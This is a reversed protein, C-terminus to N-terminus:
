EVDHRALIQAPTKRLTNFVPLLGVIINFAFCSLVALGIIYPNLMFARSLISIEMLVSIIYSMLAIGLLCAITTIAIIEGLFMKYIDSKKVGIARFIGIEKIRSLFSARIILFIEILSIAIIVGSFILNSVVGDKISEKYDNKAKDYTNYVNLKQAQFDSLTEENNNSYITIDQSNEIVYYKLTNPSVLYYSYDEASTYYGVVKLKTNNIKDEIKKNLPMMVSHAYDVVVEYDKEPWRGKKLKVQGKLLNYDLYNSAGAYEQKTSYTDDVYMPRIDGGQESLGSAIINMFLSEDTYISPSGKSTIGVISLDKMQTSGITVTRSLIDKVETLGIQKALQSEFMAKITLEDVLIEDKNEPLRGYILDEPQVLKVSALSGQMYDLINVTQYYDDYKLMLNVMSNGPLLYNVHALKEYSLYDNVKIKSSQLQLYDKNYQVFYSDEIHLAGFIRSLSLLIFMSAAFFGLLLLKKLFSYDFLKKFGNILLTFPNLVASYKKKIDKNIVENFNFEYKQYVSKDIKKYHADILEISSDDNIVEIKEKTNSKIFINGNKIVLVLDIKEKGDSYVEANIDDKTLQNHNKFDQLYINNEIVYDLEGDHENPYDKEIKGDALEIIRSAYFKALDSEHTVLIVLRTKSISKIINMIELTNKSDLNGTPEDAIIIDPMKVIARAIGVRQREGGSLMGAPRNRYRYMGLTELVYNVRTKIEKKDKIGVMKLVLAINEFVTMNDVLKYDQFIYGINLNRIKDIKNVSRKTIRQGNIYIKGNNVKDLGGIVNLLTTKGCGSPGLLAVLGQKELKLSTNNIVHIQNKKRRNFYKNVKEITVMM